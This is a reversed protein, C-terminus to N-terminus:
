IKRRENEREEEEGRLDKQNYSGSEDSTDSQNALQHSERCRIQSQTHNDESFIKDIEEELQNLTKCHPCDEEREWKPTKNIWEKLEEVKEKQEQEKLSLAKQITFKVYEVSDNEYDEPTFKFNYNDEVEKLVKEVIEEDTKSTM